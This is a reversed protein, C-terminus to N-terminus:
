FVPRDKKLFLSLLAGLILGFFCNMLIGFTVLWPLTTFKEMMGMAMEIQEDSQGQEELQIEATRQIKQIMGPDIYNMYIGSFLGSIFGVVLGLWLSAVVLDGTSLYGENQKKFAEALLYIGLGLILINVWGSTGGQYDALGAFYLALSILISLVSTILGYTAGLRLRLNKM